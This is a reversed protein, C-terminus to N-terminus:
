LDMQSNKGHSTTVREQLGSGLINLPFHKGNMHSIM